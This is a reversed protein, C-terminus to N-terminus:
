GWKWGRRCVEGPLGYGGERKHRGCRCGGRGHLYQVEFIRAKEDLFSHRRHPKQEDPWRKALSIRLILVAGKLNWRAISVRATRSVTGGAPGTPSKFGWTPAGQRTCLYFFRWFSAGQQAISSEFWHSGAQLAPARAMQALRGTFM